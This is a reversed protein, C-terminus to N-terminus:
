SETALVPAEDQMRDNRVKEIMRIEAARFPYKSLIMQNAIYSIGKNIENVEKASLPILRNYKTRDILKPDSFILVLSTSIPFWLYDFDPLGNPAYGYVTIDSTFLRDCDAFGVSIKKSLLMSLISLFANPRNEDAPTFPLCYALAINNEANSTFQQPFSDQIITKAGNLILPNRMIQLTTYFYWFEKEEKSLFCRIHFNEKRAKRMILRRREAFLGEVACLNKEIYNMGIIEGSNGRVEYLYKERCISEITVPTKIPESNKINYEYIMVGDQSFGRFHEQPVFHQNKTPHKKSM